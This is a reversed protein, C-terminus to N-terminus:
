SHDDKEHSAAAIPWPEWQVPLNIDLRRRLWLKVREQAHIRHIASFADIAFCPFSLIKLPPQQQCSVLTGCRSDRFIIAQDAANTM